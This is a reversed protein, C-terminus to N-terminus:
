MKMPNQLVLYMYVFIIGGLSSGVPKRWIKKMESSCTGGASCEGLEMPRGFPVQRAKELGEVMSPADTEDHGLQSNKNSGYTYLGSTGLCLFACIM